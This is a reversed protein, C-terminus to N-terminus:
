QMPPTLVTDIMYVTANATHVGGCIVSAGNVKMDNGAGTVTVPQGQATVHTGDISDPSIQGPVV